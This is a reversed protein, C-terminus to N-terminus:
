KHNQRLSTVPRNLIVFHICQQGKRYREQLEKRLEFIAYKISAGKIIVFQDESISVINILINERVREYLKTSLHLRM